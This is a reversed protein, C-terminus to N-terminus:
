LKLLTCVIFFAAVIAAWLAFCKVDRSTETHSERLHGNFGRAPGSTRQREPHTDQGMKAKWASSGMTPGRRRPTTPKTPAAPLPAEPEPPPKPHAAKRVVVIGGAKEKAQESRTAPRLPTPDLEIKGTPSVSNVKWIWGLAVVQDGPHM